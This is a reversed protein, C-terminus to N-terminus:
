CLALMGATRTLDPYLYGGRILGIRRGVFGRDLVASFGDLTPLQDTLGHEALRARVAEAQARRLDMGRRVKQVKNQVKAYQRADSSVQSSANGGHLRYKVTSQRSWACKGAGAALLQAWWDHGTVQDLPIPRALDLLARNIGSACGLMPPCVISQNLRNAIAPDIGKFAFFSDAIPALKTGVPTVDTFAYIPTQASFQAEAGQLLEKIHAVHGPEWVDDQDAFLIFDAQSTDMLLAFNGKASGTAPSKPMLTVPGPFQPAFRALIERTDDRSGDDRIRLHFDTDSQGLLSLLMEELFEAGQYTALLIDVTPAM